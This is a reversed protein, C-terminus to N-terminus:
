LDYFLQVVLKILASPGMLVAFMFVPMLVAITGEGSYPSGWKDSVAVCLIYVLYAVLLAGALYLYYMWQIEISVSVIAAFLEWVTFAIFGSHIVYEEDRWKFAYNVSWASLFILLQNLPSQIIEM